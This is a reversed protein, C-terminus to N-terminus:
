RTIRDKRLKRVIINKQVHSFPIGHRAQMRAEPITIWHVSWGRGVQVVDADVVALLEDIQQGFRGFDLVAQHASVQVGAPTQLLGRAFGDRRGLQFGDVAPALFDAAHGHFLHGVERGDVVEQHADARRWMEPALIERHRGAVMGGAEDDAQSRQRAVRQGM